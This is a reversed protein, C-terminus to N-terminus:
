RRSCGPSEKEMEERTGRQKETDGSVMSLQERIQMMSEM